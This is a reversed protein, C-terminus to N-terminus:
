AREAQKRRHPRRKEELSPGLPHEGTDSFHLPDGLKSGLPPHATHVQSSFCFSGGEWMTQEKRNVPATVM